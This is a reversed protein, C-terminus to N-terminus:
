EIGRNELKAEKNYKRKFTCCLTCAYKSRLKIPQRQTIYSKLSELKKITFIGHNIDPPKFDKNDRKFLHRILFQNLKNGTTM